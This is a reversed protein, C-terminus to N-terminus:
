LEHVNIIKMESEDAEFVFLRANTIGEQEPYLLGIMIQGDDIPLTLPPDQWFLFDGFFANLDAANLAEALQADMYARAEDIFGERVAEVFACVLQKKDAAQEAPQIVPEGASFVGESYTYETTRAHSLLTDMREIQRIGRETVEVSKGKLELTVVPAGNVIRLIVLQEIGEFSSRVVLLQEGGFATLQLSGDAGRGALTCAYLMRTEDEVALHLGSDYYLTAVFRQQWNLRAATYPFSYPPAPTFSPPTLCLSYVGFPWKCLAIDDACSLPQCIEGGLFELKRTIPYYKLSGEDRLPIFTIYHPASPSIPLVVSPSFANLEGAAAGNVEILGDVGCYQIVLVPILEM